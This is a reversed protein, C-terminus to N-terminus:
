ALECSIFPHLKEIEDLMDVVVKSHEAFDRIKNKVLSFAAEATSTFAKTDQENAEDLIGQLRGGESVNLYTRSHLSSTPCAGTEESQPSFFVSDQRVSADVAAQVADLQSELSDKRAMSRRFLSVPLPSLVQAERSSAM